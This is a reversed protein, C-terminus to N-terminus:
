LLSTIGDVRNRWKSRRGALWDACQAAREAFNGTGFLGARKVRGPEPEWEYAFEGPAKLAELIAAAEAGAFADGATQFIAGNVRLYRLSGPRSGSGVHVTIVPQPDSRGSTMLLNVAGDISVIRCVRDGSSLSVHREMHWTMDLAAALALVNLVSSLKGDM